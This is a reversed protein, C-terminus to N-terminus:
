PGKFFFVSHLENWVMLVHSALGTARCPVLLSRVSHCEFRWLRYLGHSALVVLYRHQCMSSNEGRIKMNLFYKWHNMGALFLVHIAIWKLFFFYLLLFFFFLVQICRWKLSGNHEFFTRECDRQLLCPFLLQLLTSENPTHLCCINASWWKTMIGKAWEEFPACCKCNHPIRFIVDSM